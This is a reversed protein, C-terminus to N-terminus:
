SGCGLCVKNWVVVHPTDYLQFRKNKKSKSSFFFIVM